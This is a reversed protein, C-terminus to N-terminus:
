FHFVSKEFRGVTNNSVIRSDAGTSDVKPLTVALERGQCFHPNLPNDPDERFVDNVVLIRPIKM